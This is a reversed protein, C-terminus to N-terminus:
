STRKEPWARGMKRVVPFGVRECGIQAEPNRALTRDAAESATDAIEFEGSDIEIAVVKDHLEKGLKPEIREHYIAQGKRAHVEM